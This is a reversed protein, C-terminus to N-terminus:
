TERAPSDPFIASHMLNTKASYLLIRDNREERPESPAYRDDFYDFYSKFFVEKNMMHRPARWIGLEMEHHAYYVACDFIWPDGTGREVGINGDWLDGHILMPTVSRGDKELAGVLRPILRSQVNRYVADLELWVGNSEVDQQYAEDLLRSFFPTWRDQLDVAQRRCGDYTQVHFGFEGSPRASNLHMMALRPGLKAPEPLHSVDQEFHKFEVILFYTDHLSDLSKRLKGYAIPRPVLNPALASLESM